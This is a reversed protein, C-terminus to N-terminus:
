RNNLEEIEKIRVASVSDVAIDFVEQYKLNCLSDIEMKIFKEQAYYISDAQDRYEDSLEPVVEVCGMISVSSVAWIFLLYRFVNKHGIM